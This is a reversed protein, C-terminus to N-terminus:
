GSEVLIGLAIPLDYMSPFANAGRVDVVIKKGPIKWGRSTLATTVRLLCEKIALDTFSSTIHIGIGEEMTVEVKAGCSVFSKTICATNITTMISYNQFPQNCSLFSDPKVRGRSTFSMIRTGVMVPGNALLFYRKRLPKQSISVRESGKLTTTSLFSARTESTESLTSLKTSLCITLCSFEEKM